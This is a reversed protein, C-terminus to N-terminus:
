EHIRLRCSFVGRPAPYRQRGHRPFHPAPHAGTSMPPGARFRATAHEVVATHLHCVQHLADGHEQGALGRAHYGCWLSFHLEEGLENWLKELEIAGVVDGADWLLNVMEGYARVRREGRQAERVVPGLSARFAVPDVQGDRMFMSLTDAADLWLLSGETVARAVDIGTDILDAQFALRHAETAIVIASERARVAEGLYAGVARILDGERDYFQVVHDRDGVPNQRTRLTM